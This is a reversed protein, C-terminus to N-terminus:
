SVIAIVLLIGAVLEIFHLPGLDDLNGQGPRTGDNLTNCVSLRHHSSVNPQKSQTKGWKGKCTIDWRAGLHLIEMKTRSPIDSAFSFPTFCLGFLWIYRAMM